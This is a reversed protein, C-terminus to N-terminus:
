LALILVIIAGIALAIGGGVINRVLTSRDRERPEHDRHLHMLTAM